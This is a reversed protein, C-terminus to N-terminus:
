FIEKKSQSDYTNFTFHLRLKVQTSILIFTLIAESSFSIIWIKEFKQMFLAMIMFFIPWDLKQDRVSDLAVTGSTQSQKQM